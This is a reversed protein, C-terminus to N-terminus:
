DALQWYREFVQRMMQANSKNIIEVGVKQNNQWSYTTVTNNYITIQNKMLLVNSELTKAQYHNAMFESNKTFLSPKAGPNLLERTKYAAKVTMDRHKEAWRQSDVLDQIAGNGFILIEVKTKLEHWLMQKFGAVGEYTQIASEPTETKLETLSPLLQNFIARQNKLKEEQTVLEVELTAPDAAVLFTGRDDTRSGVLSRKELQDALRYVKTRNIGTARSLELHSNPGKLLELYIKAEDGTLNLAKLYQLITDKTNLM